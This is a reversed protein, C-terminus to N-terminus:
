LLRTEQAHRDRIEAGDPRLCEVHELLIQAEMLPQRPHLKPPQRATTLRQLARTARSDICTLM